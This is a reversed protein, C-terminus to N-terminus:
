RGYVREGPPWRTITVPLYDVRASGDPERHVLTHALFHEDDRNPFDTRQHAGRSEERRLASEIITQAVDLMGSLELLALLETNFTHSHDDIGVKAFREQLVRIQDVAKTLTPGDRYIGAATELTDRMDSRIDAIRDSGDAHRSLERELRLAETRAQAQVAPSAGRTTGAHEAAFEAAARGARAGFVLCEPLSNSGLRNAGNISVCATEGAAYLGPVTTAGDIDTHIGGMMYHVVPQVPILETVPDIHQYDRCLERIFPLKEDILAAGLHRIDLYVVPGYPTDVTRGKEHEHVFAQSVRDRPGLEMSRLKPEPTPKGLDYDQLYRYGDKNLLWGGEARAAETILIGTFPLGTPHYQVFEMDKLPAGARYALAMGDGTKINANTTFPFVRGCGGTCVIVADALITEIRGTALEIAVVGCIRGEDVLLTTAFWEDYCVIDPYGLLRQFLTHLLHFGTKDAAFWTRQKQMGGFARVAIRGDPRRSWPCGWHELQILERQAEAVFVEVADQDCLWDSGSITDHAHEDLSDDEGAVAAAGGEASVTHSRMPYVKSVIAVNLRPNTEAIAIAARLGAGGGGIVVINHTATM